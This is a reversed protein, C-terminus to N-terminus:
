SAGAAQAAEAAAQKEEHGPPTDPEQWPSSDGYEDEDAPPRKIIVLDVLKDAKARATATVLSFDADKCAAGVTVTVSQAPGELTSQVDIGAASGYVADYFGAVDKISAAVEYLAMEEDVQKPTADTPLAAGFPGTEPAKAMLLM